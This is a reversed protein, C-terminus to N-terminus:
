ITSPKKASGRVITWRKPDITVKETVVFHEKGDKTWWLLSEADLNLYKLDERTYQKRM